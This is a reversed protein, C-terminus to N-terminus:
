GDPEEDPVDSLKDAHGDLAREIDCTVHQKEARLDTSVVWRKIQKLRNKLSHHSDINPSNAPVM